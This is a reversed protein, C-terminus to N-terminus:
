NESLIENIEKIKLLIKFNRLKQGLKFITLYMNQQSYNLM